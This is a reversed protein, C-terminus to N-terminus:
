FNLRYVWQHLGVVLFLVRNNELFRFVIRYNKDVRFSWLQKNKPELKETNLSNYFPNKCFIDRQKVVRKKVAPSLANFLAKFEATAIVEM